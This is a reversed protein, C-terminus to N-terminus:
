TEIEISELYFEEGTQVKIRSSACNPCLLERSNPTYRNGCELCEILVPKRTFNLKAGMAITGDSIMDWYFQISDDVSTSWDGMVINLDTIRKAKQIDAHRLAIELISQTVALEHM